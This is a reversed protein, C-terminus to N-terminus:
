DVVYKVWWFCSGVHVQLDCTWARLIYRLQDADYYNKIIEYKSGDSLERSKFTDALGERTLLRGGVGPVYVNDAMFVLAGKGLKLHFGSISELM